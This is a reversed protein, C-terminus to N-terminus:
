FACVFYISRTILVGPKYESSGLNQLSGTKVQTETTKRLRDLYFNLCCKNIAVFAEKRVEELSVIRIDDMM